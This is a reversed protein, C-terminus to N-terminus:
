SRKSGHWVHRLYFGCAGVARAFIYAEPTMDRPWETAHFELDNRSPGSDISTAQLCVPFPGLKRRAMCCSLIEPAVRMRATM